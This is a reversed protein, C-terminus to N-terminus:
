ILYYAAIKGQRKVQVDGKVEFEFNENDGLAEITKVSVQVQGADSLACMQAAIEVTEGVLSYQNRRGVLG